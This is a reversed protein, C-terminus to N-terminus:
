KLIDKILEKAKEFDSKFVFIKGLGYAYTYIGDYASDEFSRNIFKINYQNLVLEIKNYEPYTHYICLEVLEDDEVMM